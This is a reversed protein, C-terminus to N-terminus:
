THICLTQETLADRKMLRPLDLIAAPIFLWLNAAGTQLAHIIDPMTTM